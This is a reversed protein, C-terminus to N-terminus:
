THGHTARVARLTVITQTTHTTGLPDHAIITARARLAHTRALLKHAEGSLHLKVTTVKGGAVTFSGSALTVIRKRAQRSTTSATVANLTRLTITGTCTSEDPPCTVEVSVTGAKSVTLSTSALTADPTPLQPVRPLV